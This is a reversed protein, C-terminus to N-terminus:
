GGIGACGAGGFPPAPVCGLPPRKPWCGTPPRPPISPTGSSPRAPKRVRLSSLSLM